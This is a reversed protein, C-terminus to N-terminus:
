PRKRTMIRIVIAAPLIMMAILILTIAAKM